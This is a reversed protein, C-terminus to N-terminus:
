LSSFIADLSFGKRALAAIVQRRQKLNNLNKSKYRTELLNKILESQSKAVGAETLAEDIQDLPIGKQQLKAKIVHIGTRKRVQSRIFGETWERDNIYGKEVLDKLLPEIIEDSILKQQLRRRMEPTSYSKLALRKLAYGRAKKYETKHDSEM